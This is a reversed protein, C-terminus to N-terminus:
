AGGVSYTIDDDDLDYDDIDEYDLSDDYDDLNLGKVNDTKCSCQHKNHRELRRIRKSLDCLDDALMDNDGYLQDLEDMIKNYLKQFSCKDMKRIFKWIKKIKM